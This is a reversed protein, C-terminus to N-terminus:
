PIRLMRAAGSPDTWTYTITCPSGTLRQPFVVLNKYHAITAAFTILGKFGNDFLAQGLRQTPAIGTHTTSSSGVPNARSGYILWDGTLEQANTDLVDAQEPDTLDVIDTLDVAVTITTQADGPVSVISGPQTIDGYQRRTEFPLVLLNEAL